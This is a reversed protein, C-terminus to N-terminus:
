IYDNYPNVLRQFDVWEQEDRFFPLDDHPKPEEKEDPKPSKQLFGLYKSFFKIAKIKYDENPSFELIDWPSYDDLGDWFTLLFHGKKLYWLNIQKNQLLSLTTIHVGKNYLGPIPQFEKETRYNSLISFIKEIDQNEILKEIDEM